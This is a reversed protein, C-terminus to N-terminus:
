VLGHRRLERLTSLWRVHRLQKYDGKVAVRAIIPDERLRQSEVHQLTSPHATVSALVVDFDDRLDSALNRLASEGGNPASVAEIVLAKHDRLDFHMSGIISGDKRVAAFAIELDREYRKAALAHYANVDSSVAALVLKRHMAPDLDANKGPGGPADQPSYTFSQAGSCFQRRGDSHEYILDFHEWSGGSVETLGSVATFGPAASAWFLDNKERASLSERDFMLQHVKDRVGDCACFAAPPCVPM